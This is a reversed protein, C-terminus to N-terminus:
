ESGGAALNVALVVDAANLINSEPEVVLECPLVVKEFAFRKEEEDDEIEEAEVPKDTKSEYADDRGVIVNSKVWGDLLKKM